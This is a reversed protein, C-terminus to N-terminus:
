TSLWSQHRYKSKSKKKKRQRVRVRVRHRDKNWWVAKCCLSGRARHAGCRINIHIFAYPMGLLCVGRAFAQLVKISYICQQCNPNSVCAFWPVLSAFRQYKAERRGVETEKGNEKMIIRMWFSGVALQMWYPSANRCKDKCFEIITKKAKQKERKSENM